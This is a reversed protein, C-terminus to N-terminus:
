EFYLRKTETVLLPLPVLIGNHRDAGTRFLKIYYTVVMSACVLAIKGNRIPFVKKPCIKDLINFNDLFIVEPM